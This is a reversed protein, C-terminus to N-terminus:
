KVPHITAPLEEPEDLNVPIPPMWRVSQKRQDAPIAQGEDDLRPGSLFTHWHARRIHPRVHRGTPESTSPTSESAYARRLASGMRVGVNWTTTTNAPFLKEGHRRTRKPQPNAPQRDGQYDTTNCLYILLNLIPRTHKLIEQYAREKNKEDINSSPLQRISQELTGQLPILQHSIAGGDREADTDLGLVLDILDSDSTQGGSSLRAWAGYIAIPEGHKGITILGPTEVYVCWEPLRTLISAPIDGNLPTDIVAQYVAPDFRYIGQTIRWTAMTLMTEMILTREISNLEQLGEIIDPPMTQGLMPPIIASPVYVFAPWNAKGIQHTGNILPYILAGAEGSYKQLYSRARHSKQSM